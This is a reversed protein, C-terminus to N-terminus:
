NLSKRYTALTKIVVKWAETMQAPALSTTEPVHIFGGLVHRSAPEQEVRAMIGYFLYNCLFTGASSTIRVPFSQAKLDDLLNQLPLLSSYKDPGSENIKAKNKAVGAEDTGSAINVATSELRITTDGVAIGSGIAIAPHFKDYQEFFKTHAEDWVVPIQVTRVDYGEIMTDGLPEVSLWSPNDTVDDFPGFGSLLLVEAVDIALHLETRCSVDGCDGQGYVVSQTHGSESPEGQVLGASTLSLGAPLQGSNLSYVRPATDNGALNLSYSHGIRGVPGTLDTPAPLGVASPIAANVPEPAAADQETSSCAQLAFAAVLFWRLTSM